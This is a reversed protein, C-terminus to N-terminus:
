DARPPQRGFLYKLLAAIGLVLLLLVLLWLIGMGWMMAGGMSDMMDAGGM